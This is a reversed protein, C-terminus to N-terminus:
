YNSISNGIGQMLGGWTGIQQLKEQAEESLGAMAGLTKGALWATGYGIGANVMTDIVQAPSVFNSGVRRKTSNLTNTVLGAAETPTRGRSADAWIEQNFANVNIDCIPEISNYDFDAHKTTISKVKGERTLNNATQIEAKNEDKNKEKEEAQIRKNQVAFSDRAMQEKNRKEINYPAYLSNEKFEKDNMFWRKMFPISREGNPGVDLSHRAIGYVIPPTAMIVGGVTPWLWPQEIEEGKRRRIRNALAGLGIGVSSSLMAATAPSLAMKVLYRSRM